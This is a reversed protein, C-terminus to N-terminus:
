NLFHKWLVSSCALRYPIKKTLSQYFLVKDMTPSIIEPNINRLETLFCASCTTYVLWFDVDRWPKQILEQRWARQSNANRDPNREL